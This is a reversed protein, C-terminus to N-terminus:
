GCDALVPRLLIWGFPCELKMPTLLFNQQELKKANDAEAISALRRSFLTEGEVCSSVPTQSIGLWLATVLLFHISYTKKLM